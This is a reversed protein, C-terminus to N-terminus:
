NSNIAGANGIQATIGIGGIPNALRRRWEDFAPPAPVATVKSKSCSCFGDSIWAGPTYQDM